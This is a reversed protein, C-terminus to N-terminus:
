IKHFGLGKQDDFRESLIQKLKLLLNSKNTSANNRNTDSYAVNLEISVREKHLNKKHIM